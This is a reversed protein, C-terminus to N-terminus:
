YFRKGIELVPDSEGLYQVLFLYMDKNVLPRGHIHSAIFSFSVKTM